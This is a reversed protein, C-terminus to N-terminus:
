IERLVIDRKLPKVAGTAHTTKLSDLAMWEAQTMLPREKFDNGCGNMELVYGQYWFCFPKGNNKDFCPCENCRTM